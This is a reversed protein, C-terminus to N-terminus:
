QRRWASCAHVCRMKAFTGVSHLFTWAPRASEQIARATLSLERDACVVNSQLRPCIKADAFRSPIIFACTVSVIVSRHREKERASRWAATAPAVAPAQHYGLMRRLPSIAPGLRRVPAPTQWANIPNHGVPMVTQGDEWERAQLKPRRYRQFRRHVADSGATPRHRRATKRPTKCNRCLPPRDPARISPFTQFM